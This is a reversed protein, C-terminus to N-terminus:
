HDKHVLVLRSLGKLPIDVKAAGVKTVRTELITLWVYKCLVLFSLALSCPQLRYFLSKNFSLFRLCFFLLSSPFLLFLMFVQFESAMKNIAENTKQMAHRPAIKVSGM